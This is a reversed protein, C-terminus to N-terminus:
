LQIFKKFNNEIFSYDIVKKEIDSYSNRQTVLMPNTMLCKYNMQIEDRLYVDLIDSYEIKQIGDYKKIITSYVIKNYAMSHVALANKLLILNPKIKVLKESVNAGLYFLSWELDSIQSIAKNLIETPDDVIFKIDDEFILVNDLNNEKAFKVIELNSKIIGLKSDTEEIASFREVKDLIGVKDLEKQCCEWRDKRRDLNICFIRSFYDFPNKM